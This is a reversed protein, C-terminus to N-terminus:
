LRSLAEALADYVTRVRPVRRLDPHATLWIPLTGVADPGFLRQVRTDNDGIVCQTFGVGCGALVLEWCAVQDDCRVGFAHRDLTLGRARFGDIIQTSRDYGILDHRSVDEIRSPLGKRAIYSHAAYAGLAVDAVHRTIVDDQTPRYMRLAIDAERRLLNETSDSAALEIEIEPHTVRLEAIIAPLTFHAVVRSATIRVTGSLGPTADLTDFRAAAKEMAEAHHLLEAGQTTLAMGERGRDFLRIGLDTELQAIHRSLTPQSSQMARAAASLSGHQAVAAFSQIQSWDPM